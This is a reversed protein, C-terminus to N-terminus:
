SWDKLWAFLYIAIAIAALVAALKLNAPKKKQTIVDRM